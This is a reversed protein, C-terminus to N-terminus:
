WDHSSHKLVEVFTPDSNVPNGFMPNVCHSVINDFLHDILGKLDDGTQKFDPFANVELLKVNLNEDVLFDVGFTEFANPLPQFHLRNLNVAALFLEKTIDNIQSKVKEKDVDTLDDLSDFERVANEAVGSDTQLCTNTLHCSISQIDTVEHNAAPLVFPTPAFLALMRSYVYVQLDGNCVIYCRIHFKRNDMRPLLLPNPLYEQVIFNRLQSSVVRTSEEDETEEEEFSDFIAQLDDITKFIRIGQGKDAMSPKLIWWKTEQELEQRLEWNEDLADDLFEAYDIEINFSELYARKLVSEPRKVVYSHITHSLFHKRILAKRYIYANAYYHSSSFLQDVDIQEYDGYHFVKSHQGSQLDPLADMIALEPLHRKLAATLPGYIYDTSPITIAACTRDRDGMIPEGLIEEVVQFNALLPTVSIHGEEIVKGDYLEGSASLAAERAKAFNPSWQFELAVSDQAPAEGDAGVAGGVPVVRVGSYVSCWQTPFISTYLTRASRLGEKLPVNISYLEVRPDWHSYLWQILEVSRESADRFLADSVVAAGDFYAWSLAIAPVQNTIVANMAAGVTGSSTIYASSTNRGVNPGSVVLDFEGDVLHNLGIDACTAPTSNELLCWEVHGAPVERQAAACGALRTLRSGRLPVAHPGDFGNDGAEVATYIFSARPNANPFHAKGVWSRQRDPVCITLEWGTHRAVHDVFHRVYPSYADHPPGDDNTLLVRMKSKRGAREDDVSGM